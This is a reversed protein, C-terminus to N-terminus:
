EITIKRDREGWYWAKLSDKKWTTDAPTARLVVFIKFRISDKTELQYQPNGDHLLAIRKLARTKSGTEECIFKYTGPVPASTALRALSDAERALTLSDKQPAPDKTVAEGTEPPPATNVISTNKPEVKQSYLLYGGWVIVGMGILIGAVILLKKLLNGQANQQTYETHYLPKRDSQKENHNHREPAPNDFRETLPQGVSFEFRGDKNKQLSGIGELFLPKGINLLLKCDGLFSDLDSEALPKIKGTKERIFDILGADPQYITKQQFQIQQLFDPFTKDHSDPIAVNADITFQGIGPLNLQRNQYLYQTLLTALKM